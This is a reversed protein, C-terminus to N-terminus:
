REGIGEGPGYGDPYEDPCECPERDCFDCRACQCDTDAGCWPCPETPPTPM